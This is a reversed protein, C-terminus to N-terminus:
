ARVECGGNLFTGYLGLRGGLRWQFEVGLRFFFGLLFSFYFSVLVAKDLVRVRFEMSSM